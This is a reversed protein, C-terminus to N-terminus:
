AWRGEGTTASDAMNIGVRVVQQFMRMPWASESDYRCDMLMLRERKKKQGGTWADTIARFAWVVWGCVWVSANVTYLAPRLAHGTPGLYSAPWAQRTVTTALRLTLIGSNWMDAQMSWMKAYHVVTCVVVAHWTKGGNAIACHCTGGQLICEM